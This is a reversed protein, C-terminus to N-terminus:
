WDDWGDGEPDDDQKKDKGDGGDEKDGGDDKGDEGDKDGEGANEGGAGGGREEPPVVVERGTIPDITTPVDNLEQERAHAAEGQVLPNLEIYMLMYGGTHHEYATLEIERDPGGWRAFLLSHDRSNTLEPSPGLKESYYTFAEQAAAFDVLARKEVYYCHGLYFQALYMIQKNYRCAIDCTQSTEVRYAVEWKKEDQLLRDAETLPMGYELQESGTFDVRQEKALATDPMAGSVLALAALLCVAAKM